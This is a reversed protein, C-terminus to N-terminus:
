RIFFVQWFSEGGSIYKFIDSKINANFYQMSTFAQCPKFYIIFYITNQKYKHCINLFDFM